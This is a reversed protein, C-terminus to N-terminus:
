STKTPSSYEKRRSVMTQEDIFEYLKPYAETKRSQDM